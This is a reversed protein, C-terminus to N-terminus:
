SLKHCNNTILTCSKQTGTRWNRFVQASLGHLHCTVPAMRFIQIAGIHESCAM